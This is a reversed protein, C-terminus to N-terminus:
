RCVVFWFILFLFGVGLYLAVAGTKGAVLVVGVGDRWGTGFLGMLGYIGGEM